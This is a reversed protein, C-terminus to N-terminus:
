FGEVLKLAIKRWTVFGISVSLHLYRSGYECIGVGLTHPTGRHSSLASLGTM